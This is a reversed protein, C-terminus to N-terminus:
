IFEGGADPLDFAEGATFRLRDAFGVEDFRDLHFKALLQLTEVSLIIRRCLFCPWGLEIYKCQRLRLARYQPQSQTKRQFGAVSELM